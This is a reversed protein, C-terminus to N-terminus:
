NVCNQLSIGKTKLYDAFNYDTNMDLIARWKNSNGNYQGNDNPPSALFSYDQYSFGYYKEPQSEIGFRKFKRRTFLNNLTSNKIMCYTITEKKNLRKEKDWLLEMMNENIFCVDVIGLNKDLYNQRGRETTQNLREYAYDFNHFGLAYIVPQTVKKFSDIQYEKIRTGWAQNGAKAEIWFDLSPHHFDPVNNDRGTYLLENFNSQLFREFKIGISRTVKSM